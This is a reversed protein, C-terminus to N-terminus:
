DKPKGLFDSLKADSALADIAEELCPAASPIAAIPVASVRGWRAFADRRSAHRRRGIERKEKKSRLPRKKKCFYGAEEDNFQKLFAREEPTLKDWYDVETGPIRPAKV